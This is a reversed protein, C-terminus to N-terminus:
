MRDSGGKLISCLFSIFVGGESLEGAYRHNYAQDM